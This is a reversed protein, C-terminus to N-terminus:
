QAKAIVAGIAAIREVCRYQPEDLEEGFIDPEIERYRLSCGLDPLDRELAARLEDRGELISVGTYLIMHGGPQLRRAAEIAWEFSLQAGHMGGGDRYAREEEDMIYPPNAIVLDFAGEVRTLGSSEVLEAEVGAFAANIAAFRLASPNVDGLTLRAAPVLKAAVIGGAGSGAGIDVIRHVQGLRPIEARLLAAYRYTDPGFFVSNADDTPYASHLFLEEGARSVRVKSRFFDGDCRELAGARGLLDIFRAPIAGDAFPLSWGFVDRLGSAQAKRRVNRAHTEPTVTTFAYAEGALAELLALL